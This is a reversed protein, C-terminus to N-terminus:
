KLVAMAARIRQEDTATFTNNASTESLKWAYRDRIAYNRSAVMAVLVSAVYASLAEPPADSFSWWMSHGTVTDAAFWEQHEDEWVVGAMACAECLESETMPKTWHKANLTGLRM